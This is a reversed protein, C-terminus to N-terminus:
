PRFGGQTEQFSGTELATVSYNTNYKIDNFTCHTPPVDILFLLASLPSKM